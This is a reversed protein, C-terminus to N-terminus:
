IVGLVLYAIVYLLYASIIINIVIISVCALKLAENTYINNKYLAYIITISIAICVLLILFVINLAILIGM